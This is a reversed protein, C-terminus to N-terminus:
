SLPWPHQQQQSNLKQEPQRTEATGPWTGKGATFPPQKSADWPKRALGTRQGRTIPPRASTM